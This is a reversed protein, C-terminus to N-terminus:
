SQLNRFTQNLSFRTHRSKKLKFKIAKSKWILYVALSGVLLVIIGVLIMIGSKSSSEDISNLVSENKPETTSSTQEQTEATPPTTNELIDDKSLEANESLVLQEKAFFEVVASNKM